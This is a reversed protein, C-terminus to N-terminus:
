DRTDGHAAVNKIILMQNEIRIEVPDDVTFGAEELWVGSVQLWPVEKGRQWGGSLDRHKSHLKVTRTRKETM